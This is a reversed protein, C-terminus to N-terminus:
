KTTYVTEVVSGYGVNRKAGMGFDEIIHQYLKKRTKCDFITDELKKNERVNIMVAITVDPMIRLMTIPVPNKTPDTGHPTISDMGIIDKDSEIVFAGYFIDGTGDTVDANHAHGFVANICTSIDAKVNEQTVTGRDSVENLVDTIYELYLDNDVAQDFVSRIIGKLSSGPYYPAGTVYDFSFGVQIEGTTKGTQHPYGMGMVMGPYQTKFCMPSCNIPDICKLAEVHEYGWTEIISKNNENNVIRLLERNDVREQKLACYQYEVQFAYNMNNSLIEKGM